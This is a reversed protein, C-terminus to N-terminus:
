IGKGARQLLFGNFLCDSEKEDDKTLPLLFRKRGERRTRLV